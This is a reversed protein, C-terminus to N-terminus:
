ADLVRQPVVQVRARDLALKSFEAQSEIPFKAGNVVLFDAGSDPATALAVRPLRIM